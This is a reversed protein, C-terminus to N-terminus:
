ESLSEGSLMLKWHALSDADSNRDRARQVIRVTVSNEV